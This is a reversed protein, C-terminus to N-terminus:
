IGSQIGISILRQPPAMTKTMQNWSAPLYQYHILLLTESKSAWLQLRILCMWFKKGKILESLLYLFNVVPM